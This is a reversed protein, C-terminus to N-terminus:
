LNIYSIISTDQMLCAEILLTVLLFEDQILEPAEAHVLVMGGLLLMVALFMKNM